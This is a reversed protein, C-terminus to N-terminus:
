VTMVVKPRERKEVSKWFEATQRAVEKMDEEVDFREIYYERISASGDGYRLEANLVAFDFGTVLLQALVQLYYKQPIHEGQWEADASKSHIEATKCEWIGRQGVRMTDIKPLIEGDLTCSLWPYDTNQYVRFPHYDVVFEKKHKLAFLARLHEEAGNGYEILDNTKEEAFAADSTKMKWLEQPTCFGCGMAAAVESAGLARMRGKLWAQRTDYETFKHKPSETIGEKM